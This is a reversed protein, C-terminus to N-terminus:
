GWVYQDIIPGDMFAFLGSALPCPRTQAMFSKRCFSRNSFPFFSVIQTYAHARTHTPGPLQSGKKLMGYELLIWADQRTIAPSLPGEPSRFQPGLDFNWISTHCFLFPGHAEEPMYFM